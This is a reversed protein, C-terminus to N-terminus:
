VQGMWDQDHAAFAGRLAAIADPALPGRAIAEINEQLHAISATGVISSSVGPTFTAFRLAADLWGHGGPADSEDPESGFGMDRFRRWYTEVYQGKPCSAHRWPANAAPRKAIFGMRNTDAVPLVDDIVRQDCINVSAMYGDFVGSQIAHALDANEGSYATAGILGAERVGLLADVVGSDKLVRAPCSHLHVIDLVDTRMLKLAREIGARICEPTWDEHGEVGYGVKTSLVYEARRHAIYKGIREESRGYGRATDILTIGSDLAANLLAAADADPLEDRGLQGAGLGLASVRLGSTGYARLEV